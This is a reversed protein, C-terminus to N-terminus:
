MGMRVNFKAAQVAGRIQAMVTGAERKFQQPTYRLVLWGALAAANYKEMDSVFGAGRTHRGGTFVGGEIEVALHLAPWAFDFRWQRSADFRHETEVGREISKLAALILPHNTAKRKPRKTKAIKKASQLKRKIEDEVRPDAVIVGGESLYDDTARLTKM